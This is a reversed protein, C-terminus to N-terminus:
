EAAAGATNAAAQLDDHAKASKGERAELLGLALKPEAVTDDAAIAAAYAAAAVADDNNHDAAFGLDYQLRADKAGRAALVKLKAEAGAYDGQELLSEADVIQQRAADEASHDDVSHTGPPLQQAFGCAAVMMTGVMVAVRLRMAM